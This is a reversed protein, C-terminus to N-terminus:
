SEVEHNSATGLEIWEIALTAEAPPVKKAVDENTVKAAYLTGTLDMPDDYSPIEESAVFKYFGKNSGDTSLYVTKQDEQVDPAEWASRGM